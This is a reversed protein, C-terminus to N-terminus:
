IKNKENLIEEIKIYMKEYDYLKNAFLFLNESINTMQESNNLVSIKQILEIYDNQEFSLQYDKPFYEALGGTKPFISPIGNISAESLLRPQGEFLKTCTIVARSKKIINVTEYNSLFGLFAINKYKYKDILFKELYGSGIIYLKLNTKSKVWSNLLNILGKEDTLAGAYVVQESTSFYTNSKTTTIPNFLIKIKNKNFGSDILYNKYFQNLVVINLDNKKLINFYKKGYMLVFFSKIYSKQFYKNIIKNNSKKNGCMLCQENEKFHNKSLFNKTCVFRFNHIKLLVPIQYKELIKFIGLNAKFWTNHIYVFDPKFRNLVKILEKNSQINSNNFFAILDYINLKSSNDFELYEVIYYKKLFKQEEVINADEGGFKKYKTNIILVKKM